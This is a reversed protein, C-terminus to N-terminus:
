SGAPPETPQQSQPAPQPAAQPVSPAAMVPTMRREPPTGIGWAILALAIAGSVGGAMLFGNAITNLAGRAVDVLAQRFEVSYEVGEIRAENLGFRVWNASLDSNIALGIMFILAAPVILSWGLWLLRERRDEGGVLAAVLWFSATIFVLVGIATGLGASATLSTWFEAGRLERRLNIPNRELNIRDPVKDLFAPLAATILGAAEDVSVDSPRCRQITGGPAIPDQGDACAPLAEALARAFRPGAEGRLAAKLPAVDLYLDLTSDRGELIDFADNVLRLVEGRLYDPTVVQRLAASLVGTPLSDAETVIRRQFTNPLDESLLVEYLREDGLLNTYFSRDLVWSSVSIVSLTALTLPFVIAVILLLALIKRM